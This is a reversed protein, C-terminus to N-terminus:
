GRPRGSGPIWPDPPGVEGHVSETFAVGQGEDRRALARRVRVSTCGSVLRPTVSPWTRPLGRVVRSEGVRTEDPRDAHEHRGGPSPLGGGARPHRAVARRSAGSRRDVHGAGRADQAPAPLAVMTGLATGIAVVLASEAAMVGLVQRNTAGALRLATLDRTRSATAMMLTNAIAVATYGASTAVLLLTFIWVLRDERRTPRWPTPPSTSSAHASSARWRCRTPSTAEDALARPPRAGAGAAPALLMSFPAEAMVGVVRLAVTRGDEFTIDAVDGPRWGTEEALWERVVM